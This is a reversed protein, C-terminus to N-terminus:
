PQSKTGTDVGSSQFYECLLPVVNDFWRLQAGSWANTKSTALMARGYQEGKATLKRERSGPKTWDQLELEHLAANVQAASVAQGLKESVLQAVQSAIMGTPSAADNQALVLQADAAAGALAPFRSALVNLKWRARAATGIGASALWQSILNLGEDLHQLEESNPLNDGQPLAAIEAEIDLPYLRDSSAVAVGVEIPLEGEPIERAAEVLALATANGAKAQYSWYALAASWSSLAVPRPKDPVIATVTPPLKQEHTKCFKQASAKNKGVPEGIQRHTFLIRRLNDEFLQYAEVKIDGLTFGVAIAEAVM